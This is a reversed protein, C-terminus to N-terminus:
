DSGDDDDDDHHVDDMDGLPDDDSDVHGEETKKKKKPQEVKLKISLGGSLDFKHSGDKKLQDQAVDIMAVLVEQICNEGVNLKDVLIRAAFTPLRVTKKTSKNAVSAKAAKMAKNPAMAAIPLGTIVTSRHAPAGTSLDAPRGTPVHTLTSRRHRSGFCSRHHIDAAQQRAGRAEHRMSQAPRRASPAQDIM